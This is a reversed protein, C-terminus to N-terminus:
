FRLKSCSYSHQLSMTKIKSPLSPPLLCLAPLELCGPVVSANATVKITRPCCYFVHCAVETQKWHIHNSGERWIKFLLYLCSLQIQKGIESEWWRLARAIVLLLKLVVAVQMDSLSGKLCHYSPSGVSEQALWCIIPGKLIWAIGVIWM